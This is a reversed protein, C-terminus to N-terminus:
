DENAFIEPYLRHADSLMERILYVDCDDDDLLLIQSNM